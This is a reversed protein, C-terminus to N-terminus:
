AALDGFFKPSHLRAEEKPTMKVQIEDAIASAVTNQIELVDRLDREYSQAWLNRDEPGYVLQATIRVRNGSREVSGEVIGQVNLERAIKPLSKHSDEYVQSSTRSIVKIESIQSLETMLEETMGDAFYKQEPDVSLNKLPLVALSRILPRGGKGFVRERSGAINFALILGF